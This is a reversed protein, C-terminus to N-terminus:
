RILALNAVAETHTRQREPINSTIIGLYLIFALAVAGGAIVRRPTSGLDDYRALVFERISRTFWMAALWAAPLVIWFMLYRTAAGSFPKGFVALSLTAAVGLLVGSDL